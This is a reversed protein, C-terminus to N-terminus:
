TGPGHMSLRRPPDHTHVNGRYSFAHVFNFNSSERVRLNVEPAATLATRPVGDGRATHRVPRCGPAAQDHGPRCLLATGFLALARPGWSLFGLRAARWLGAAAVEEAPAPLGRRSPYARSM